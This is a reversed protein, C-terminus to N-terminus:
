RRRASGLAIGVSLDLRNKRAASLAAVLEAAGGVLAVIIFGVFAPTMGLALAAQQLSEVFLDSVLAVLVTVCAVAALAMNLPWVAEGPEGAEAAEFIERHTRLSFILSLAYAAILVVSLSLSLVQTFQAMPAVTDEALM